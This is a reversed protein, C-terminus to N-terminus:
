GRLMLGLEGVSIRLDRHSAPLRVALVAHARLIGLTWTAAISLTCSCAYQELADLTVHTVEDVHCNSKDSRLGQRGATAHHRHRRSEGEGAESKKQQRAQM